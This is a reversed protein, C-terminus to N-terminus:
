REFGYCYNRLLSAVAILILGIVLGVLMQISYQQPSHVIPSGMVWLKGQTATPIPTTGASQVAVSLFYRWTQAANRFSHIIFNLLYHHDHIVEEIIIVVVPPIVALLFPSRKAYASCFMMWGLIPFLWLGQLWLTTLLGFWSLGILGPHLLIQAAPLHWLDMAVSSVVLLVAEVLVICIWSVLPAVFLGLILKSFITQLSSSPMSQWFLVSRNKRDTFLCNWFYNFVTLWLVVAFVFGVDFIYSAISGYSLYTQWKFQQIDPHVIMVIWLGVIALFIFILGITLPIYFFNGRYEWWERRLLTFLGRM